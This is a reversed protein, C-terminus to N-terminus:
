ERCAAVRCRSERDSGRTGLGWDLGRVGSVQRRGRPRWGGSVGKRKLLIGAESSYTAKNEYVNGDGERTKWASGKNEDLNTCRENMKTDEDTTTVGAYLRGQAQRLAPTWTLGCSSPNGGKSLSLGLKEASHRAGPAEVTKDIHAM